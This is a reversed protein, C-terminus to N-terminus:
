FVDEILLITGLFRYDEDKLYLGSRLGKPNQDIFCFICQNGCCRFPVPEFKLGLDKGTENQIKLTFQKGKREFRCDLFDDASYFQFDVIDQIPYHNITILRDEVLIGMKEALSNTKINKVTIM